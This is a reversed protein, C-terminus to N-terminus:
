NSDTTDNDKKDEKIQKSLMEMSKQFEDKTLIVISPEDKKYYKEYIKRLGVSILACSTLVLMPSIIFGFIPPIIFFGACKFIFNFLPYDYNINPIIALFCAMVVYYLYLNVLRDLFLIFKAMNQGALYRCEGSNFM